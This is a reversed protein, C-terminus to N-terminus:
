LRMPLPAGWAWCRAAGGKGSRDACGSLAFGDRRSRGSFADAARVALNREPPGLVDPPVGRLELAVEADNRLTLEVRDALTLTQFVTEIQHYGSGERALVELRLNVKAPAEGRWGASASMPKESANQHLESEVAEEAHGLESFSLGVRSAYWLGLFTM